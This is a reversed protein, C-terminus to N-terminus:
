EEIHKSHSGRCSPTLPPGDIPDGCHRCNQTGPILDASPGPDNIGATGREGIGLLDQCSRRAWFVEGRQHIVKFPLDELAKVIGRHDMRAVAVVGRKAGLPRM